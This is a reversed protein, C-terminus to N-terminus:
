RGAGTTPANGTKTPVADSPKPRRFELQGVGAFMWRQGIVVFEAPDITLEIERLADRGTITVVIEGDRYVVRDQRQALRASWAQIAAINFPDRLAFGREHLLADLTRSASADDLLVRADLARQASLGRSSPDGRWVFWPDRPSSYSERQALRALIEDAHAVDPSRLFGGFLAVMGVLAAALSWWGAPTAIPRTFVTLRPRSPTRETQFLYDADAAIHDLFGQSARLEAQCRPCRSIHRSVARQEDPPLERTSACMLEALSPCLGDVNTDPASTERV